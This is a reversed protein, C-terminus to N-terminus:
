FREFSLFFRATNRKENIIPCKSTHSQNMRLADIAMTMYPNSNDTKVRHVNSVNNTSEVMREVLNEHPVFQEEYAYWCMDEIFGKRLLHITVVDPYFFKKNKCIKCPCRIGGGSINRSISTTYNIFGQIENCYNM